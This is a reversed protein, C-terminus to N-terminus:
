SKPDNCHRCAAALAMLVVTDGPAAQQAALLFRRAKVADGSRIAANGLGCLANRNRPDIRRMEIWIREAEDWREAEVARTAARDLSHLPGDGLSCDETEMDISRSEGGINVFRLM